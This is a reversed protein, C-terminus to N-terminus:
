SLPIQRSFQLKVAYLNVTFSDCSDGSRSLHGFVSNKQDTIERIQASYLGSFVGYKSVKWATCKNRVRLSGKSCRDHLKKLFYCADKM